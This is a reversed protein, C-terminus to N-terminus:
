STATARKLRDNISKGLGEDPFAEALILDLGSQDLRHMARYLNRAAERLSGGPSLVEQKSCTLPAAPNQFLLLGIKKNHFQQLDELLKNSILTPTRPAYHRSLMGPAQPTQKSETYIMLEGAVAQIDEMAISGHRYLIPQNEKFGIITSEIGQECEGGNLIVGLKEGLYNEVHQASTPSICGFPNASPAALPFPLRQLLELAMPHHPVRVAVTPKGATILDPIHPQKQLVLTLPGPWFSRALLIAKEPIHRAVSSLMEYSHIHVILPNYLPRQKLTFIKKVATKSLANGALGYVTETPLGILEDQQLAQIAEQIQNTIM